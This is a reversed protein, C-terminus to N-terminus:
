DYKTKVPSTSIWTLAVTRIGAVVADPVSFLQVRLMVAEVEDVPAEEFGGVTFM